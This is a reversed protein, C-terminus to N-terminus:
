DWSTYDIYPDALTGVVAEASPAGSVVNCSVRCDHASYINLSRFETGTASSTGTVGSTGAVVAKWLITTGSSFGNDATDEEVQVYNTADLDNPAVPIYIDTICLSKASPGPTYDGEGSGSGRPPPPDFSWVQPEILGHDVGAGLQAVLHWVKPTAGGRAQVEQCHKDFEQRVSSQVPPRKTFSNTM